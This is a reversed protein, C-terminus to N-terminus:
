GEGFARIRQAATEGDLGVELVKKRSAAGRVITVPARFLKALRRVLELNARNGEARETLRVKLKGSPELSVEFERSNPIVSAEIRAM